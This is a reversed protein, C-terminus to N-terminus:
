VNVLQIVPLELILIWVRVNEVTQKVSLTSAATAVTGPVTRGMRGKLAYQSFLLPCTLFSLYYEEILFFLLFLFSFFFFRLVIQNQM